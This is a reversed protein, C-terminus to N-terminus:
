FFDKTLLFEEVGVSGCRYEGFEKGEEGLVANHLCEVNLVKFRSHVVKREGEQRCHELIIFV